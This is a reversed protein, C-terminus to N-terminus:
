PLGGAQIPPCKVSGFSCFVCCHGPQPRLMTDCAACRYVVQCANSPMVELKRHGCRPCTIVSELVIRSM